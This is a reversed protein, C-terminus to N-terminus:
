SFIRSQLQDLTRRTAGRHIDLCKAAKAVMAVRLSPDSLVTEVAKRIGQADNVEIAGDEQLFARVLTAFNQM